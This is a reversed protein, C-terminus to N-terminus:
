DHKRGVTINQVIKSSIPHLTTYDQIIIFRIIGYYVIGEEQREQPITDIPCLTYGTNMMM